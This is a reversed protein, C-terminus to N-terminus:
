DQRLLQHMAEIQDSGLEAARRELERYHRLVEAGTGTLAAGGGRAGGRSREVLPQRFTRNMGDVLSWARKYSMGMRRGAEAISGTERILDLLDAKGPGFMADGEFLVRLRLRPGATAAPGSPAPPDDNM